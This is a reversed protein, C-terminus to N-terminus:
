RVEEKLVTFSNGVLYLSGTVFVELHSDDDVLDPIDGGREVSTDRNRALWEIAWSISPFTLVQTMQFLILTLGPLYFM